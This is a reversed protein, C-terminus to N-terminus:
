CDRRSLLTKSNEINQSFGEFLQEYKKELQMNREEPFPDFYEDVSLHHEPYYENYFKENYMIFPKLYNFFTGWFGFLWGM